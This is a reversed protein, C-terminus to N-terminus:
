KRNKPTKQYRPSYETDLVQHQQNQESENMSAPNVKPHSFHSARLQHAVLVADANNQIYNHAILAPPSLQENLLHPKRGWNKTLTFPQNIYFVNGLM